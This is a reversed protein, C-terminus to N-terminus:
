LPKLRGRQYKGWSLHRDIVGYATASLTGSRGQFQYGPFARMQALRSVLDLADYGMTYLRKQRNNWNPWLKSVEQNEETPRMLWPSDSITINNLEVATQSTDQELRSRSTTYLPVPQAFVSFNVDIFPKLLPLDTDGAIMYIADIDRRSRFDAKLQPGILAKMRAIRAQSDKVGLAEKVALSMKDGNQYYHVEADKGTLQQWALNFADAMRRGTSDSSVLLLPTRIGDQYMKQAADSAEQSPSLAFYFLDAKPTFSDTQNLFLQPIDHGQQAPQALYTQLKDVNSPLLPGLIFEAGAAQAQQYALTVNKATDYFNITIQNNGSALYNSLIGQKIPNAVIARPGTLPLLVAIQEPRYPKASLAKELDTPLKIAGPHSPNQQQWQGLYKVLENPAIAYHKAIYALQMWGAFTPNNQTNVYPELTAEDIPELAHWITDNLETRHGPQLYNELLSLQRVEDIPKQLQEYLKAKLSYYNRWQWDPLEWATPYSLANLAENPKSQQKLSLASLYAYEAQLQPTKLKGNLAQLLKDASSYDGQNLYAHAALLTYSQQAQISLVSTIKSLYWGPTQSADALSVVTDPYHVPKPASACGALIAALIAAPIFKITKLSKLM